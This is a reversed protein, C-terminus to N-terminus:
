VQANIKFNELPEGTIMKGVNKMKRREGTENCKMEHIVIPICLFFIRALQCRTVLYRATQLDIYRREIVM